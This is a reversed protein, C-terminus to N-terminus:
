TQRGGSKAQGSVRGFLSRAFNYTIVLAYSSLITWAIQGPLFIRSGTNLTFGSLIAFYIYIVVLIISVRYLKKRIMLILGLISLLAVRYNLGLKEQGHELLNIFRANGPLCRWLESRCSTSRVLANRLLAAITTFPYSKCVRIMEAKSHMMFALYIKNDYLPQLESIEHGLDSKIESYDKNEIAARALVVVTYMGGYSSYAVPPDVPQKERAAWLGVILLAVVIAAMPAILQKWRERWKEGVAPWLLALTAILLPGFFLLGISRVLPAIGFLIAAPIYFRWRGSELGSLFLVLALILIFFFLTDSMVLNSLAIASVSAAHMLGALLSVIKSHTLKWAFLTLLSASLASLLIQVITILRPNTSVSRLIALFTPYGPGFINGPYADFHLNDRIQEAATIYNRSDEILEGLEGPEIQGSMLLFLITRLVLAVFFVVLMSKQPQPIDSFPVKPLM